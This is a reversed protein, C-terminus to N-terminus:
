SGAPAGIVESRSMSYHLLREDNEHASSGASVRAGTRGSRRGLIRRVHSLHVTKELLSTVMLPTRAVVRAAPFPPMGSKLRAAAYANTARARRSVSRV